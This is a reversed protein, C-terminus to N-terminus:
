RQLGPANASRGERYGLGRHLRNSLGTQKSAGKGPAREGSCGGRADAPSDRLVRESHTECARLTAALCSRTWKGLRAAGAFWEALGRIHRVASSAYPTRLAEM